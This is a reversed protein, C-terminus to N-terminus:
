KPEPPPTASPTEGPKEPPTNQSPFPLQKGTEMLTKLCSVVQPWSGSADAFTQSEGKFGSHNITLVCMADGMPRLEYSVLTEPEKDGVFVFTHAFIAPKKGEPDPPEWKTVKGTIMAESGPGYAIKGGVKPELTILPVMYYQDVITKDSLAKWVEPLPKGIFLTINLEPGSPKTSRPRGNPSDMPTAMAAGPPPPGKEKKSQAFVSSVGLGALVALLVASRVMDRKM